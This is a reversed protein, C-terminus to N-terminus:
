RKSNCEADCVRAIFVAAWSWNCTNKMDNQRREKWNESKWKISFLLKRKLEVVSAPYEAKMVYKNAM